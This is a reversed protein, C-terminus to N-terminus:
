GDECGRVRQVRKDLSKTRIHGALVNSVLVECVSISVRYSPSCLLAFVLVMHQM